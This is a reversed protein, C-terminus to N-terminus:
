QDTGKGRMILGSPGPPIYGGEFGHLLSEIELSADIRSELDLIRECIAAADQSFVSNISSFNQEKFVPEIIGPETFNEEATNNGIFDRDALIQEILFVM